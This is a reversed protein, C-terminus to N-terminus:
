NGSVLTYNHSNSKSSRLLKIARKKKGKLHWYMALLSDDKLRDSQFSKMEDSLFAKILELSSRLNSETNDEMRLADLEILLSEEIRDMLLETQASRDGKM